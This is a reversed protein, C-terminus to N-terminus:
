GTKPTSGQARQHEWVKYDLLRPTLQPHEAQLQATAGRLLDQAERVLVTRGLAAELFRVVMRDPKVLNDTGALMLFYGLSIGSKQGPIQRIAKEIAESPVDQDIDQLHEIGHTKLVEAFRQVAEAKLIGNATSTRQSNEFVEKSMREFGREEFRRLLDGLSEQDGRAPLTSRDARIHVLRYCDCYRKVVSRVGEYRVGISYVADIVCLSLSGYYYEESLKAGRLPLTRRCCEAVRECDASPQPPQVIL